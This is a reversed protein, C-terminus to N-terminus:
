PNGSNVGARLSDSRDPLTVKPPQMTLSPLGVRCQLLHPMSHSARACSHNPAVRPPGVLPAEPAADQIRASAREPISEARKQSAVMVDLSRVPRM